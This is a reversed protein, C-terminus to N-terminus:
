KVKAIKIINDGKKVPILKTGKNLRFLEPIDYGVNLELSDGTLFIKYKDSNVVGKAFMMLDGSTLTIIKSSESRRDEANLNDLLIKKGYGKMTIIMLHSDKHSIIVTDCIADNVDVTFSKVGSSMRKTETISDSNYRLGLGNYTFTLIDTDKNIFKVSVLEDDKKIMTGITTNKLNIYASYATKKILGRKTTFLFFADDTKFVPVRLMNNEDKVYVAVIKSNDIKAHTSLPVGHSTLDCGRLTSVPITHVRGFSDFVMLTDHNKVKMVEMASDTNGITGIAKVDEKLKKVFGNTTVVLTHSTNPVNNVDELRILKSRRPEGYKEIGEELEEKIIADIKKYSSVIKMNEKVEKELKEKEEGFGKRASKCYEYSRMNAIAEAKVSDINYERILNYCIDAKDESKRIIKLTREANDKDFLFMLVELVHVRAKGMVIKMNLYRRKFDRRYAIWRLLCDKVSYRKIQLDDIVTIQGPYFKETGYKMSYLLERIEYIDVEKKFLLVIEVDENQSNNMVKLCGSLVGSEKLEKVAKLLNESTTQPPLSTITLLHNDEDVDMNARMRYVVSKGEPSIGDFQLMKFQKPEDVILCNTPSDPVIMGYNGDPDDMLKMTYNFLERVNFNPICTSVGFAMGNAGNILVNPYRAPLYSPEKLTDAYGVIVMDLVGEDFDKFFCDLAFKSLKASIYRDAGPETSGDACGYNERCNDIACVMNQWKQGLRVITEYTSSTGHPHILATQAMATNLKIKGKKVALYISYLARREGPKLGDIVLPVHRAMVVNAGYIVMRETNYDGINAKIVKHESNFM